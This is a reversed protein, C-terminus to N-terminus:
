PCDTIAQKVLAEVTEDNMIEGSHDLLGDQGHSTYPDLAIDTIVGLSPIAKKLAKITEPVLGKPDWAAKADLSKKNKSIVPFIAVAPIGLSHAKKAQTILMDVSHRCVGPMSTVDETKGKGEIVFMPLILDNATLVSERCLERAFSKLRIRRMRTFPFQGITM